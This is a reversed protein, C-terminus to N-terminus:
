LVLEPELVLLIQRIIKSGSDTEHGNTTGKFQNKNLWPFVAPSDDGEICSRTDRFFFFSGDAPGENSHSTGSHIVIVWWLIYNELYDYMYINFWNYIM